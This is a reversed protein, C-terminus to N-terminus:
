VREADFVSDFGSCVDAFCLIHDGFYGDLLSYQCTQDFVFEDELTEAVHVVVDWLDFIWEM